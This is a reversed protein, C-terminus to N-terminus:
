TEAKYEDIDARQEVEVRRVLAFLEAYPHVQRPSDPQKRILAHVRNIALLRTPQTHPTRQTFHKVV